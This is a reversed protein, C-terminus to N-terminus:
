VKSVDRQVENEEKASFVCVSNSLTWTSLLGKSGQVRLVSPSDRPADSAATLGRVDFSVVTLLSDDTNGM